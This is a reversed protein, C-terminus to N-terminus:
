SIFKVLEEYRSEVMHYLSERLNEGSLNKARLLGLKKSLEVDGLSSIWFEFDKRPVHFEISKLDLVNIKKVFDELSDAYIGSHQDLKNYFHFAKELSVSRLINQASNKDIKPLGIAQKGLITISYYNKPFISVYKANILETLFATISSSNLGVKKTLEQLGIPKGPIWLEVLIKGRVRSESMIEM